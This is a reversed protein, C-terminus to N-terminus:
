LRSIARSRSPRPMLWCSSIGAATSKSGARIAAAWSWRASSDARPRSSSSNPGRLRRMVATGASIGALRAVLATCSVSAASLLPTNNRDQIFERATPSLRGPDSVPLSRLLIADMFSFIATNAGIGLALSLVAVVTFVPSKRLTRFAFRIDNWLANM